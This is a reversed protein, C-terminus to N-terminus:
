KENTLNYSPFLELYMDAHAECNFLQGLLDHQFETEGPACCPAIYGYYEERATECYDHWGQRWTGDIMTQNLKEFRAMIQEKREGNALRVGLLDRSQETPIFTLENTETDYILQIATNWGDNDCEDDKCVFHFNGQGYMLHSNGYKEYCGICHSHQGTVLDAGAEAMKVFAKRLRPSPYPCEEKGGHYIVIVVDNEAKAKRIDELTDYPDYPRSGMRDPLAYTFEHECVAIICVKQGDKEVVYNKRSDEYDMGFGTTDLGAAKLAAFSQNVGDIGYDFFHNNSLGCLTVGVDKLVQATEPCSQLNPGFKKIPTESESIATELNIFVVDNGAMVSPVDNFLTEIDHKKFLSNTIRAGCIDGGIFIKM